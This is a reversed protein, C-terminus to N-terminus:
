KRTFTVTLPDAQSYSAKLTYGLRQSAINSSKQASEAQRETVFTIKIGQGAKKLKAKELAEVVAGLVPTFEPESAVKEVKAIPSPPPTVKEVRAVPSKGSLRRARRKPQEVPISEFLEAGPQLVTLGKKAKRVDALARGLEQWFSDPDIGLVQAVSVAAVQYAESHTLGRARLVNTEKALLSQVEGLNEPTIHEIELEPHYGNNSAM